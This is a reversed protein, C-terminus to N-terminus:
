LFLRGAPEALRLVLYAVVVVVFGVVSVLAARRDGTMGKRRALLAVVFVLWTLVGWAVKPTLGAAAFTMTWVTGALLGLTLAVLGSVLAIRGVRDLTELPPLFRFMRGFRKGKLERFQLLYLLGAASALALAAYGLLSPVVHFYFWVGGFAVSEGPEIGLLLAVGVLVAAFPLVVAGLPRAEKLVGAVLMATASLFALSSLAPGLGALPLDGHRATFVVLAGGHAALGGVLVPLAFHPSGRRTKAL